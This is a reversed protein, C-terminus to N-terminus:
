QKRLLNNLRAIRAANEDYINYDIETASATKDTLDEEVHQDIAQSMGEFAYQAEEGFHGQEVLDALASLEAVSAKKNFARLVEEESTRQGKRFVKKTVTSKTTPVTSKLPTGLFYTKFKSM